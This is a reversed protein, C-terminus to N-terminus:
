QVVCCGGESRDSSAGKRGSPTSRKLKGRDDFQLTFNYIDTLKSGVAAITANKEGKPDIVMCHLRKSLMDVVQRQDSDRRLAKEFLTM